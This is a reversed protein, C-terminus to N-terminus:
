PVATLVQQADPHSSHFRRAAANRRDDAGAAAEGTFVDASRVQELQFPLLRAPFGSNRIESKSNPMRRAYTSGWEFDSIRFGFNLSGTIHSMM